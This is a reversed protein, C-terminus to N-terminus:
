QNEAFTVNEASLKGTCMLIMKIWGMSSTLVGCDEESNSMLTQINERDSLRVGEVGRDRKPLWSEAIQAFVKSEKAAAM